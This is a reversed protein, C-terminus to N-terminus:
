PAIVNYSKSANPIQLGTGADLYIYRWDATGDLNHKLYVLRIEDIGDGKLFDGVGSLGELLSWGSNFGQSFPDNDVITRTWLKGGNISSPSYGSLHHTPSYGGLNMPITSALLVVKSNKINAIAISFYGPSCYSVLENTADYAPSVDNELAAWAIAGSTSDRFEVRLKTTKINSNTGLGSDSCSWAAVAPTVGNNAKSDLDLFWQDQALDSNWLRTHAIPPQVAYASSISFTVIISVIVLKLMNM